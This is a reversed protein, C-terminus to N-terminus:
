KSTLKIEKKLLYWLSKENTSIWSFYVSLNKVIPSKIGKIDSNDSIRKRYYKKVEWNKDKVRVFDEFSKRKKYFDWSVIAKWFSELLFDQSWIANDDIKWINKKGM